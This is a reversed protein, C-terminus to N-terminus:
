SICGELFTKFLSKGTERKNGKYNLYWVQWHITWVGDNKKISEVQLILWWAIYLSIFAGVLLITFAVGILINFLM